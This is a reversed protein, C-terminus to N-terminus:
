YEVILTIPQGEPLDSIASLNGGVNKIETDRVGQSSLVRRTQARRHNNLPVPNGEGRSIAKIVVGETYNWKVGHNLPQGTEDVKSRM